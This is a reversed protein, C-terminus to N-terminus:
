KKFFTTQGGEKESKKFKIKVQINKGVNHFPMVNGIILGFFLPFANNPHLGLFNPTPTPIFSSLCIYKQREQNGEM